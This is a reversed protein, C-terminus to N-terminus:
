CPCAGRVQPRTSSAGEILTARSNLVIFVEESQRVEVTARERQVLLHDALLEGHRREVVLLAFDVVHVEAEVEEPSIVFEAV